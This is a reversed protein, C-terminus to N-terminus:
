IEELENIHEGRKFGYRNAKELNLDFCLSNFWRSLFLAGLAYIVIGIISAFAFYKVPSSGFIYFIISAVLYSISIELLTAYNKQYGYKISIRAKKGVAYEEAIKSLLYYTMVFGVVFVVVTSVFATATLIVGPVAQLMTIHVLLAIALALANALGLMKFRVILIAFCALVIIGAIVCSLILNRNAEEPTVVSKDVLEFSFDYKTSMLRGAYQEATEKTTSLPLQVSSDNYTEGANKISIGGSYIFDEEGIYFYLAQNGAYSASWMESFHQQGETTFNIQLLYPYSSSSSSNDVVEASKIDDITLYVQANDENSITAKFKNKTSNTAIISTIEDVDCIEDYIEVAVSSDAVAYVKSDFPSSYSDLVYKIRSAHANTGEAFDASTSSNNKAEYILTTGGKYDIGLEIARLFGVYYDDAASVPFRVIAM